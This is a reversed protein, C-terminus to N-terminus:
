PNPLNPVALKHHVAFLALELRTSVGTKDFINTLHHKVTDESISFTRAIEKNSSGAIIAGVVDLERKTLGFQPRRGFEDPAMLQRLAEVLDKVREGGLWYQGEMVARISKLLMLTASEKLVVGRAGLSIATVIEAREIQATLLISKSQIGAEQLEKLAGLGTVRPMALDLLLVDPELQRTLTVAEEGNQAEGIVEFGPESELLRRLGDRFIPHDDAILIRVHGHTRPNDM